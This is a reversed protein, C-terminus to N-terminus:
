AVYLGSAHVEIVRCKGEELDLFRSLREIIRAASLYPSPTNNIKKRFLRPNKTFYIFSSQASQKLESNGSQGTAAKAAVSGIEASRNQRHSRPTPVTRRKSLFNAPLPDSKDSDGTQDLRTHDQAM